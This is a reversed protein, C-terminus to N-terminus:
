GSCFPWTLNTRQGDDDACIMKPHQPNFHFARGKELPLYNRFLSFVNVFKLFRRDVLSPVFRGQTPTYWIIWNFPGEKKWPSILVFYHFYMRLIFFDKHLNWGFKARLVKLSPYILKNWHLGRMKWHSFIVFHCFNLFIRKYFWFADMPFSSKLKILLFHWM